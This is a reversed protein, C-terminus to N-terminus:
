PYLSVENVDVTVQPVASAGTTGTPGSAGSVGTPGTTGTAGSPGSPGTAAAATAVSATTGTIATTGTAPQAGKSKLIWLLVFRYRHGNTKLAVKQHRSALHSGLLKTWGPATLTKPAASGNAGFVEFHFGPTDTVLGVKSMAQPSVLDLLLGADGGPVVTGPVQVSWSTSTDGDIALSPDGFAGAPYGNPNFNSAANFDLTLPPTQKAPPTVKPVPTTPAPTTSPTTAAPPATTPAPTPTAAPPPTAKPITPTTAKPPTTAPPAAPTPAPAPAAPAPVAAAKVIVHRGPTSLAAYAAGAAAVVLLATVAILAAGVRTGPRRRLAGEAAAGCDLCWDQDAAM